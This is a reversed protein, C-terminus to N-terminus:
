NYATATYKPDTCKIDCKTPLYCTATCMLTRVGQKLLKFLTSVQLVPVYPDFFNPGFISKCQWQPFQFYTSFNWRGHRTRRYSWWSGPWRVLGEGLLWDQWGKSIYIVNKPFNEPWKWCSGRYEVERSSHNPQCMRLHVLSWALPSPPVFQLFHSNIVLM